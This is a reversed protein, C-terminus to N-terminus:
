NRANLFHKEIKLFLNKTYPADPTIVNKIGYDNLKKKTTLGIAFYDYNALLPYQNQFSEVASPSYFVLGAFLEPNKLKQSILKTQYVEFEIIDKGAETLIKHIYKLNINGRLYIVSNITKENAMIWALNESNQVDPITSDINFELLQQQTKSGISYVKKNQFTKLVERDSFLSSIAYISNQSTIVIADFNKNLISKRLDNLDCNLEIKIFPRCDLHLTNSFPALDTEPISKTVLIRPKKM